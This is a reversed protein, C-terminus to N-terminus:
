NTCIYALMDEIEDASFGPIVTENRKARQLEQGVKIQWESAPGAPEYRMTDKVRRPTLNEISTGTLNCERAIYYLQKGTITRLDREQLRALFRVCFKSSKLLEQHFKVFRSSLMTKLHLCGSLPEILSRHTRRELRYVNRITVNWSTYLKEADKSRLDWLCSGYFSTAYVNILRMLLDSDVYHFEQLLSNVKGIFRGRKLAMDSRMSSDMELVNGLHNVKKVWPLKQGNLMVPALKSCDRPKKSFVICKTKSKAPDSHTGFKLNHESAFRDCINVLSQLGARSASLLFIDDAFIFAGLFVTDIHCGLRSAKLIQLLEDIYVAFLIASSVAGQRVGNSVAFLDSYKGSWKVRCLQNEYIYLMLRLYTFGVKRKILLEFLKPWVVMDFAKSMDMAAGYVAAGNQNFYQVVSSVAWSCMTTSASSQYAFQLESCTLKDGELILIVIDLLKLLLSGGAIARYNNSCTIDGLNDKILPALTCLLLFQPVIGHVLYIQFLNKIHTM